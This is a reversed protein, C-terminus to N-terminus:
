WGDCVYSFIYNSLLYDITTPNRSSRSIRERRKLIRPRMESAPQYQDFAYLLDTALLDIYTPHDNKTLKPYTVKTLSLVSDNM